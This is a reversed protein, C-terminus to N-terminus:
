RPLIARYVKLSQIMNKFVFERKEKAANFLANTSSDEKHFVKVEPSYLIKYKKQICYKYLILEEMYLFTGPRFSYEEQEIFSPSFVVFSGHLVVDECETRKEEQSYVEATAKTRKKKLLDYINARSLLYLVRYRWIEKTADARYPLTGKMPSQHNHDVLSEVDPGVVHFGTKEFLSSIKQIFDPTDVIIDNNSIAIYNAGLVNRAYQYGVNNGSAFGLNEKNKLVIINAQTAYKEEVKEISGNNSANDVIVINCNERLKNISEVCEITDDATKYHLIVFCFKM